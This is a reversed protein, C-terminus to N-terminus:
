SSLQVRVGRMGSLRGCHSSSSTASTVLQISAPASSLQAELKPPAEGLAAWLPESGLNNASESGTFSIAEANDRLTDVRLLQVLESSCTAQRIPLQKQNANENYRRICDIGLLKAHHTDKANTSALPHLLSSFALVLLSAADVASAPIDSGGAASLPASASSAFSPTTM